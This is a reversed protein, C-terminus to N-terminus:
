CRLGLSGVCGLGKGAGQLPLAAGWFGPGPGLNGCLMTDSCPPTLNQLAILLLFVIICYSFTHSFCCLTEPPSINDALHFQARLLEALSQVNRQPVAGRPFVGAPLVAGNLEGSTSEGGEGAGLVFHADPVVPVQSSGPSPSLGRVFDSSLEWCTGTKRTFNVCLPGLAGGLHPWALLPSPLAQGLRSLARPAMGWSHRPTGSTGSGVRPSRLVSVDM